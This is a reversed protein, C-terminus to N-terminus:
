AAAEDGFRREFEARTEWLLVEVEALKWADYFDEPAATGKKSNCSKCLPVANHLLPHGAELPRHHDLGLQDETGCASCVRGFLDFVLPEYGLPIDDEFGHLKERVLRTWRRRKEKNEPIADWAQQRVRKREKGRDTRDNRRWRERMKERGHMTAAYRKQAARMSEQGHVSAAYRRQAARIKQQGSETKRYARDYCLSCLGHGRHPRAIEGCELCADHDFSWRPLEESPLDDASRRREHCASCLGRGRHKRATTGCDICADHCRSWSM